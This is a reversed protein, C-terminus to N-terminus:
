SDYGIKVVENFKMQLGFCMLKKRYKEGARCMCPVVRFVENNPHIQGTTSVRLDIPDDMLTQNTIPSTETLGYCIQFCYCWLDLM